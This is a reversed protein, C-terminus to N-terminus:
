VIWLKSVCTLGNVGTLRLTLTPCSMLKLETVSFFGMEFLVMIIPLSNTESYAVIFIKGRAALRLGM